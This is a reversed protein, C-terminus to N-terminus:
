AAEKGQVYSKGTTRLANAIKEAAASDACHIGVVVSGILIADKGDVGTIVRALPMDQDWIM